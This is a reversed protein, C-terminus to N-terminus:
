FARGQSTGPKGPQAIPKIESNAEARWTDPLWSFPTGKFRRSNVVKEKLETSLLSDDPVQNIVAPSHTNVIVQRLSNDLGIPNEVDCAIDQLLRLMAPIRKPHIDNEPEELCILGTARPDLDLVTLALFRLTGDSLSRAPYATGDKETIQLALLERKLDQDISVKYIDDILESLRAAAQDYAKLNDNESLKSTDHGARALYFLPAPLHSGNPLLGPPTTFSDPERLAGPELQLIRWSQMERRALLATPSEIANVTSLVTRPLNIAKFSKPRGSKGDQSLKIIKEDGDIVTSIFPTTRRGKLVSKCWHNPRHRFKLNKAADGLNIPELEESNITLNGLTPIAADNRYGIELKYRVFTITAQAKQGLDDIGEKPLIMEIEFSMKEDYDSGVRHFLNRIDGTKTAESRISLAANVLTENALFSLFRIADFLNSKGTANAGAICTIPGFRLDVDVLNKFGSIKLRTIM